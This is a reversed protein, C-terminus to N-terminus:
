SSALAFSRLMTTIEDLSITQFDTDSRRKFEVMREKLNREGITVRMPCGILDADNFKVGARVDRDDLLVAIGAAELEQHLEAAVGKTDTEKSPLHLLYVDFASGGVPFQLGRDDHNQEAMVELVTGHRIGDQDAVLFGVASQLPHACVRCADGPRALTLDAVTHARYDRGLNTNRLHYGDMNAGAVLNASAPILEDVIVFVRRLGIPSAYGPVAGAEAIQDPSAPQIKGTIAELKPECLQMDGRIVAFVLEADSPRAYLLAKATKSTPVELYAALAEITSCDPTAVREIPLLDEPPPPTKAAQAAQTASAYGCQRCILMALDGAPDEIVIEGRNTKLQLLGLSDLRGTVPGQQLRAVAREGLRTLKGDANLYGARILLGEGTNRARAPRERRTEIGLEQFRM